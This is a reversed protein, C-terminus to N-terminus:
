PAASSHMAKAVPLMRTKSEQSSAFEPAPQSLPRYAQGAHIDGNGRDWNCVLNRARFAVTDVSKWSNIICSAISSSLGTLPEM